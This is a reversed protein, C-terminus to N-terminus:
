FFICCINKTTEQKHNVYSKDDITTWIEWHSGWDNYSYCCYGNNGWNKGWSNRIIFGKKNYGVITMAHGGQRKDGISPIWMRSSHNYVPFAIYCPGNIYLAKKVGEITKVQAYSKIKYDKAKDYIEKNIEEPKEIKGYPYDRESCSGFKSLISMVDRAFMGESNQNERNNYIFQPSMHEEFGVDKNEQWEKICAATQAACSGQSGQDRIKFLDKRHDVIKPLKTNKVYISEAIWDRDDDPSPLVSNLKYKLNNM